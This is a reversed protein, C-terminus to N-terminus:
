PRRIESGFLVSSSQNAVLDYSQLIWDASRAVNSLRVEDMRGPFMGYPAYLGGMSLPAHVESRYSTYGTHVPVGNLFISPQKNNYVVIIHNWGTGIAGAYVALAPMYSDGHEYVSIGNTGVSLGAGAQSSGGHDPYFAYRQGSIGGTGSTSQGDVQHTERAQIWAELTFTNSPLNTDSM